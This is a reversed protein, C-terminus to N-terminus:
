GIKKISSFRDVPSELLRCFWGMEEQAETTPKKVFLGELSVTASVAQGVVSMQDPSLPNPSGPGSGHGKSQGLARGPPRGSAQGISRDSVYSSDQALSRSM